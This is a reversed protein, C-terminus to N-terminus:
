GGPRMPEPIVLESSDLNVGNDRFLVGRRLLDLDYGPVQVNVGVPCESVEGDSLELRGDRAVQAGVLASRLVRFRSLTAAGSDFVSIGIGAPLCGGVACDRELSDEIAVDIGELSTGAGTVVVTAERNLALAARTLTASAGLQVQLARGFSGNAYARTRIVGLDRADLTSGPDTALVALGVAEDVLVRELRAAGGGAIEIGQGESLANRPETDRIVLDTAELTTGPDGVVAGLGGARELHVRELTMTAGGIAILAVAESPDPGARRADLDTFAVTSGDLALIEGISAARVAVRELTAESGTFLMAARGESVIAGDRATLVSASMSLATDGPDEIYFRELLVEGGTSSVSFTAADRIIVDALDLAGTSFAFAATDCRELSVDRATVSGGRASLCTFADAITLKSVELDANVATVGPDGIVTDPCAGRIALPTEVRVFEDYRGVGIAITDGPAAVALADAITGFPDARTGDGSAGALM